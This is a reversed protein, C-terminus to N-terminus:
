PWFHSRVGAERFKRFFKMASERDLQLGNYEQPMKDKWGCYMLIECRFHLEFFFEDVLGLLQPDQLLEMAMPIEVTPTDIDLKFSVFDEPVAIQKMMKLPSLDKDESGASVPANFFHYLPRILPPVGKWFDQPELLTYEFGFDQDFLV